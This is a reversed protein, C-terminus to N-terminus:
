WPIPFGKKTIEICVAYAPYRKELADRMEAKLILPANPHIRVKIIKDDVAVMLPTHKPLFETVMDWVRIETPIDIIPAAKVRAFNPHNEFNSIQAKIDLAISVLRMKLFEETDKMASLAFDTNRLPTHWRKKVWDVYMVREKATQQSHGKEEQMKLLMEPTIGVPILSHRYLFEYFERIKLLHDRFYKEVMAAPVNEGKLFHSQLLKAKAFEESALFLCLLASQNRNGLHLYQADDVYRKCNDISLLIGEAIMEHPIEEYSKRPM